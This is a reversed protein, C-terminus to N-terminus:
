PIPWEFASQITSMSSSTDGSALRRSAYKPAAIRWGCAITNTPEVCKGGGLFQSVWAMTALSMGPAYVIASLTLSGGHPTVALKHTLPRVLRSRKSM